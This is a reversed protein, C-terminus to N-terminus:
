KVPEEKKENENQTVGNIYEELCIGKNYIEMAFKVGVYRIHWPEYIIKTIETKDKPYRIIFGYKHCNEALWKGTETNGFSRELGYDPSAIDIALGTQHESQGPIAVIKAAESAAMDGFVPRLEETKNAYIKSQYSYTRYASYIRLNSIGDAKADEMLKVVADAAAPHSYYGTEGIEKLEAPKYTKSLSNQYNVILIDDRSKYIEIFATENENSEPTNKEPEVPMVEELGSNPNQEENDPNPSLNENLQSCGCSFLIILILSILGKLM